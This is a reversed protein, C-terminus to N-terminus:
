PRATGRGTSRPAGSSQLVVVQPGPTGSRTGPAPDPARSQPPASSPSVASTRGNSRPGPAGDRAARGAVPLLLPRPRRGSPLRGAPSSGPRFGFYTKSLKTMPLLLRNACAAATATASAGARAYLGSNM